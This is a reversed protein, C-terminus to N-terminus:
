MDKIEDELEVETEVETEIYSKKMLATETEYIFQIFIALHELSFMKKLKLFSNCNFEM